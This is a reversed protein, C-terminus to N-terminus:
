GAMKDLSVLGDCALVAAIRNFGQKVEDGFSSEHGQNCGLSVFDSLEFRCMSFGIYQIGIDQQM